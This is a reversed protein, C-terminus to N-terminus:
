PLSQIATWAQWHTKGYTALDSDLSLPNLAKFALSRIKQDKDKLCRTLTPVTKTGGIQGIAALIHERVWLSRGKFFNEKAFLSRELAGTAARVTMDGLATAAAARVVMAKDKLAAILDLKTNPAGILALGKIAAM